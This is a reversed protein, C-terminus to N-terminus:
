VPLGQTLLGGRCGRVGGGGAQVPGTGRSILPEILGPGQTLVDEDRSTPCSQGSGHSHGPTLSRIELGM